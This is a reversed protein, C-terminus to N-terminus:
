VLVPMNIIGFVHSEIVVYAKDYLESFFTRVGKLNNDNRSNRLVRGEKNV